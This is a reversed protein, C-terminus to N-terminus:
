RRMGALGDAAVQQRSVGDVATIQAGRPLAPLLETAVHVAADLAGPSWKSGPTWMQWETTLQRLVAGRAFWVRGTRIAQAIPEARLVKSKRATVSVVLPCLGSVQGERVLEGWAQSVAATGLDGGYNTEVVVRDAGWRDAVECVLRPWEVASMRRTRDELWWVRGEGDLGAVVVGVSDRGGGAPDVGVALRRFERPADGTHDRIDQESVLAGEADFPVGQYLANWDRATSRERQTAWHAAMGEWDDAALKPHPLPEGVARGLADPYIGKEPDPPLALAPLHVVRWRGGEEVRGESDLIRGALDDTRWRTMIVCTRTHPVRRSLFAGSYWDWVKARILESEAAERDKVPDDIIGCNHVLIENAFFNRNGAVQLDYVDIGTGRVHQVSAVVDGAECSCVETLRDGAVLNAAAVYGRGTYVRHDPTCEIVRGSRTHIRVIQRDEVKRTAIVPRWERIGTEHNFSLVMPLDGSEVISAISRVGEPTIINADGSLCDMDEGTLGSGVGRAIVGGGTTLSWSTKEAQAKSVALGYEHGHAFMIDRAAVSHRTPLREGYATLVIRHTPWHTLWWDPFWRSALESKGARPPTWIMLSGGPEVLLQALADNMVNTHPLRRFRRDFKAAMAAPGIEPQPGLRRLVAETALRRAELAELVLLRM